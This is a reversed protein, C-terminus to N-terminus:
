LEIVIRVKDPTTGAIRAIERRSQELKDQLLEPAEVGLLQNTTVGLFVALTHMRNIKPRARNQEWGSVSATSVDLENAVQTQSLGRAIRFRRLRAGFSENSSPRGDRRVGGKIRQRQFRRTKRTKWNRTPSCRVRIRARPTM